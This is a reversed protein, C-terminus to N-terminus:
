FFTGLNIVFYLCSTAFVTYYYSSHTYKFNYSNYTYFGHLFRIIVETKIKSKKGKIIEFIRFKRCDLKTFYNAKIPCFLQRSEFLKKLQVTPATKANMVHDRM